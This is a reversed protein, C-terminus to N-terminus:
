RAEESQSLALHLKSLQMHLAEADGASPAHM